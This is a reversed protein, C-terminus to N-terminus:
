SSHQEYRNEDNNAEDDENDNTNCHTDKLYNDATLVLSQTKHSYDELKLGYTALRRVYNGNNNRLLISPPPLPSPALSSSMIRLCLRTCRPRNSSIIGTDSSTDISEGDISRWLSLLPTLVGSM